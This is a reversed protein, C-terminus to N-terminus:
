PKGIPLFAMSSQIAYNCSCGSSGEPILLLGGAPIMNIWCGPRTSTTVKSYRNATLDFMTPHSHRFFFTSASASITGCGRRRGANWTWNELPKGTQLHYAFPECYLRDGVIVPHLDQEGHSGGAEAGNNQTQQWLREGDDANFVSVDVHVKPKGNIRKNYSGNIVVRNRVASLYITHEIHKLDIPKKWLLSGTRMDLATLQAPTRFLTAAKHRGTESNNLAKDTSELLYVRGDAVAITSNVIPGSAPRYKWFVEGTQRQLAFFEDSCVLPRADFYTGEEIQVRSHDRRSSGKRQRTGLLLDDVTALYGWEVSETDADPLEFARLQKGTRTDLHLCRAAAAVYLSNGSAALYSSDRYIGARRSEPVDVSWLPTGNYADAAVVRNDGPVILRGNSLLPAATRHHRDMMGRPGPAGFWQLRMDGKVLTDGSCVTNGADAYQHTWEGIGALPGRRFVDAATPGLMAIGGSPRTVRRAEDVNIRRTGGRLSEASIVLNFLYDTYPLTGNPDRSHVAVRGSLGMADLRARSTAVAEASEEVCVINFESQSALAAALAGDGANLVLAWGQRTNAQDIATTALQEVTERESDSAWPYDALPAPQHESSEIAAESFCYIAGQGTSVLLCSQSIAMSYANGDVNAKWVMDGTQSDFAALENHGGAFRSRSDGIFAYPYKEQISRVEKGVGKGRRTLTSVFAGAPDRGTAVHLRSGKRELYGQAAISIPNRAILKGTAIDVAAQFIGQEPFLGACFFAKGEDVLVGSRVPWVSIVRGNGAIQRDTELLRHKWLLSGDSASVCYVCGDDSGFLVRGHDITPALRVPAEAFFRWRVKGSKRDLCVVQDEASSAYFVADGVAIVPCARDFTVRAKLGHKRNWFDHNAPPPWAPEPKKRTRQTWQLKLPFNLTVEPAIGTRLNDRLHTPWDVVEPHTGEIGPFRSKRQDFRHVIEKANLTRNWVSVQEVQGTLPHYESDDWYAGVGFHGKEPYVIAGSQAQSTAALEGDVFLSQVTGNWTGVVHYWHGPEFERPSTLYTIRKKKETTLAFFFQSKRYGLLWGREYDGNDQVVGFIGGWELPKDVRVWAEATLVKTPLGITTFDAGSHLFQKTGDVPSFVAAGPVLLDFQLATASVLEVSGLIPAVANERAHERDLQWRFVPGEDARAAATNAFIVGLLFPSLKRLSNM